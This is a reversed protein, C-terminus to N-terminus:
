FVFTKTFDILRFLFRTFYVPQPFRPSDGTLPEGADISERRM